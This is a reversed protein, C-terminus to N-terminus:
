KVSAVGAHSARWVPLLLFLSVTAAAMALVFSWVLTGTTDAIWGSIIPAIISGIGLYFTWLGIIGGASEKPFYDSACAAYMSWVAGYGFGFIVTFAILALGRNYAMGLIGGAILVACLMLVKIRGTRDSIPGMVLKGIIGGGGIVTVLRTAAEYSLALEQVAYTSLFTFPIIISFGTLLYALGILWFRTDGLLRKYTVRASGPSQQGNGSRSPSSQGAPYSRVFVFNIIALLFGMGGLSIWGMRWSHAVAILPVISGSAMVGLSSGADVFALTMGKHKESSWRQAVAMIPAWCAACGVGALAFFLSAQVLSSPFAMLFTGAGLIASFLTLVVRIDYRDSLLGLVPSIVTYAVFYSSYIVGAEAKSIALYPLMEPLLAGYSYRIIYATFVTFFCAFLVGIACRGM